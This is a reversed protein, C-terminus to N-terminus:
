GSVDAVVDPGASEPRGESTSAPMPRVLKPGYRGDPGVADQTEPQCLECPAGEGRRQARIRYHRDHHAGILKRLRDNEILLEEMETM